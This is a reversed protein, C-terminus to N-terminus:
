PALLLSLKVLKVSKWDQCCSNIERHGLYDEFTYDIILNYTVIECRDTSCFFSSTDTWREAPINIIFIIMIVSYFSIM